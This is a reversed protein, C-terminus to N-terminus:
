DLQPQVFVDAWPLRYTFLVFQSLAILLLTATLLRFARGPRARQLHREVVVCCLPAVLTVLNAFVVEALLSAFRGYYAASTYWLLFIIWPMLVVTFLRSWLM